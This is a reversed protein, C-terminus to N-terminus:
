SYSSNSNSNEHSKLSIENTSYPNSNKLENNSISHRKEQSIKLLDFNVIVQENSIISNCRRNTRIFNLNSSKNQLLLSPLRIKPITNKKDGKHFENEVPLIDPIINNNHQENSQQLSEKNYIVEM